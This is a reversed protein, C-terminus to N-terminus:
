VELERKIRENVLRAVQIAEEADMKSPLGEPFSGPLVDPYRTPIYFRDLIIIEDRLDDFPSELILSLIDVLKHSQPYIDGKFAIYGKLLKEVCQQSHFCVQNFLEEKFALEAMMLNENAFNIWREIKKKM